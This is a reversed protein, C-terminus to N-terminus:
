TSGLLLLLNLHAQLDAFDGDTDVARGLNM